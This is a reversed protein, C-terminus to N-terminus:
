SNDYLGVNRRLKDRLLDGNARDLEVSWSRQASILHKVDGLFGSLPRKQLFACPSGLRDVKRVRRGVCEVQYISGPATRM